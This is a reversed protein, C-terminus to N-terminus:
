SKRDSGRILGNCKALCRGIKRLQLDLGDAASAPKTFPSSTSAYRTLGPTELRMPFESISYRTGFSEANVPIKCRLYIEKNAKGDGWCYSSAIYPSGLEENRHQCICYQYDPRRQHTEAFTRPALVLVRISRLWEHRYKQRLSGPFAEPCSRCRHQFARRVKPSAM